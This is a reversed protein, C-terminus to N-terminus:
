SFNFEIQRYELIDFPLLRKKADRNGSVWAKIQQSAAERAKYETPYPTTDNHPYYARIFSGLKCNISYFFGKNTKFIVILIKDNGHIEKYENDPPVILRGFETFYNM